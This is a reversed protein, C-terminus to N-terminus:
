SEGGGQDERRGLVRVVVAAILSGALVVLFPVGFPLGGDSEPTVLPAAAAVEAPSSGRGDDGSNGPDDGQGRDGASSADGDGGADAGTAEAAPSASEAAATSSPESTGDGGDGTASLSQNDGGGGPEPETYQDVAPSALALPAALLALTIVFAPVLSKLRRQNPTHIGM